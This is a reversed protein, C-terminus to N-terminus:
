ICPKECISQAIKYGKVCFIVEFAYCGNGRCDYDIVGAGIDIFYSNTVGFRPHLEEM